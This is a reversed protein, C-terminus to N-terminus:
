LSLLVVYAFLLYIIIILVEVAQTADLESSGVLLFSLTDAIDSFYTQVLVDIFQCDRILQYSYVHKNNFTMQMTKSPSCSCGSIVFVLVNM